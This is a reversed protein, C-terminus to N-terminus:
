LGGAVKYTGEADKRSVEKHPMYYEKGTPKGPAKEIVASQLQEQIISDYEEYNGDRELRKVLQQLRRQSDAENIPLTPHNAKWPM